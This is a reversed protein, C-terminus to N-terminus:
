STYPLHACLSFVLSISVSFHKSSTRPPNISLELVRVAIFYENIDHIGLNTCVTYLVWKFSSCNQVNVYIDSRYFYTHKHMDIM